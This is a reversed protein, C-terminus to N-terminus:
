NCGCGGGSVGGGGTSGERYEEVHGDLKDEVKDPTTKMSRRAHTERQYPKVRSCASLCLAAAIAITAIRRAM